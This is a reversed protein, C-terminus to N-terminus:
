RAISFAVSQLRKTPTGEIDEKLMMSRATPSHLVEDLSKIEGMPVKQKLCAAYFEHGNLSISANFILDYLEDRHILRQQNLSFRPDDAIDLDLIDCLGRFQRDTGIALVFRKGEQTQMIEGYPAINPHLTGMPQPIFGEMLYNSAQNALSSLACEELSTTILAGKGDKGKQILALLIAEKLQHAAFLDIFAVPLKAPHGDSGCMSIFGTEAQMVIDFAVHESGQAFGHLIAIILSPYRAHLGPGDVGFREASSDKMNNIFIDAESILVQLQDCDSALTLDLNVYEKQYNVSSFYASITASPDESKLKWSRTMDGGKSRNEIKLVRAGLEAFFMGVAPGALVSALEIVTLGDFPKYGM